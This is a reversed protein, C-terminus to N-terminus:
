NPQYIREAKEMIEEKDFTLKKAKQQTYMEMQDTYHPSSPDTSSGFPVVSEMAVVGNQDYQIFMMFDDGGSAYFKGNDDNVRGWRAALVGPGGYIPLEKNGRKFRYFDKFPVEIKGFHKILHTRVYDFGPLLKDPNELQDINRLSVPDNRQFWRIYLYAITPAILDGDFQYDWGKILDILDQNKSSKAGQLKRLLRVYAGEPYGEDYKIAKLEDMNVKTGDKYIERFRWSRLNDDALKDYAVLTDYNLRDLWEAKCTCKFPTHNVNYVYGCDPNKIRPRESLPVYDTWLTKSTNGPLVRLWNYGPQRQPFLGNFLYFINDEKDAYTINFYPLGNWELAKEFEELNQAQIMKFWQEPTKITFIPAMRIAYFKGDKSKLTPGYKSWYVKRTVSIPFPIAKLKVKLKLKKEELNLWQGDYEYKLPETPHSKLFYVDTHDYYNNTHTWGLNPNTGIQPAVSGPFMAGHFNLGEESVVHIEYFSELGELEVHPNAILYTRGDKSLKKSFAFANSGKMSSEFSFDKTQKDYTGNLVRRVERDMGIFQAIKVPYTFLVEKPTIPFIAKHLVKEPHKKAYANIGQCYGELYASSNPHSMM